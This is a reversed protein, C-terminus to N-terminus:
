TVMVIVFRLSSQEKKQSRYKNVVEARHQGREQEEMTINIFVAGKMDGAQKNHVKKETRM